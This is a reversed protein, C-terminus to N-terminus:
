SFKTKFVGYLSTAPDINTSLALYAVSFGMEPFLARGGPASISIESLPSPAGLFKKFPPPLGQIKLFFIQPLIYLIINIGYRAQLLYM